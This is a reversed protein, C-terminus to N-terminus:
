APPATAGFPELAIGLELIRQRLAPSTLAQLERERPARYPDLAALEPSDYGPHVMLETTGEPLLEVVRLLDRQFTLSGMLAIGTFGVDDMTPHRGVFARLVRTALLARPNGLQFGTRESPHRVHSIGHERAVRVVVDFIRPLCHTHRHSDIHTLRIGHPALLEQARALQARLEQEVERLDLIGRMARWIQTPLSSFRGTAADTLSSVRTLPAGAAMNFHLGIGRRVGRAQLAALGEVAHGEGGMNVMLSASTVVGHELAELIGRNVSPVFGLDDANIVLRRRAM